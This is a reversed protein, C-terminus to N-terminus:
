KGQLVGGWEVVTFGNREFRHKIVPPNAPIPADLGEYDMLIRLTSDQAPTVRLPALEDMMANGHFGIKYYAADKMRPAWFEMFDHIEQANLGIQWLIKPLAKEVEGQKMVWYKEPAEYLGGRGEWFLYPYTKGDDKNVLSGNPSATVRWGDNYAPEVKTFGGQPEVEVLVDTKEEPYLYIVPKGCEAPSLVSTNTLEVWRGLVDKTYLFPKLAVFEDATKEPNWALWQDLYNRKQVFGAATLEYVPTGQVYGLLQVRGEVDPLTSVNSYTRFGCGGQIGRIFASQLVTSGGSVANTVTIDMRMKDEKSWFPPAVELWVVRGDPRIYYYMGKGENEFVPQGQVDNLRFDEQTGFTTEELSTGPAMYIFPGAGMRRDENTPALVAGDRLTVARPELGSLFAEKEITIIDQGEGRHNCIGGMDTQCDSWYVMPDADFPSVSIQDHGMSAWERSLWVPKKTLDNPMLVYAYSYTVNVEGNITEGRTWFETTVQLTVAHDAYPGNEILGIEFAQAIGRITGSSPSVENWADLLREYPEIKQPEKYWTVDIEGETSVFNTEVDEKTEQNQDQLAPKQIDDAIPPQDKNVAVSMKQAVYLGITFAVILMALIVPIIMFLFDKNSMTKKTAM